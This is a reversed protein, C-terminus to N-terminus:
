KLTIRACSDKSSNGAKDTARVCHQYRGKANKPAKWATVFIKGGSASVFKSQLTAIVQGNRRVQERIKVVGSDDSARSVLKVVKGREGASALAQATPAVIDPPAPLQLEGAGTQNDPGPSALDKANKVLYQQLQDPTYSPFAGKVLAAAGAVNPSAASTGAFASVGCGSFPGYTAGSVSDFGSIDPKVRGDITPGESSYPELAANQWCLAGAALAAPSSAPDTISGEATEYQTPPTESFLDIRPNGVQQSAYIAWFADTTPGTWTGCIAETPSQSGNQTADSIDLIEGTDSLALVLDFDSQAAPPWQDWRLFGCITAGTPLVFTDGEDGSGFDLFGDGSSTFTGSWHTTAENGAANV